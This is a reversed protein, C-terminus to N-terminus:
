IESYRSIHAIFADLERRSVGGEAVSRRMAGGLEAARRRIEDGEESGMLRRVVEEVAAAEVVEHRRGWDRMVLGVRLMKTVLVTNRPQDSHMPWAVIPVGMSLSEMCSNWGCHSVFGGTSSHGLIELQPAWDRVVMGREGFGKPLEVRREEEKEEGDFVDGKDADRLVWIFKKNSRELGIALEKIQEDSLSTTSGFAVYIVSNPAQKDLWDLCTHRRLFNYNNNITVPNFPGIAWHKKNKTIQKKALLNIYPGEIVKSTNYLHGSNFKIHDHQNRIFKLFESTFCGELSPLDKLIESEIAFPREMTEWFYLFTTFASVSHFIYSETNPTSPIDQVISSMLSDHIVIIRRYTPSLVDLLTNFPDRLCLSAQFSPQLHSPFKISANPNPPPSPFFPTPFDHFHINAASIPDWGHVRLKAQRNHTASAVYHVPIHYASILRSLQLLQNLHGQAPFPVVVVVIQGQQLGNQGNSPHNAM